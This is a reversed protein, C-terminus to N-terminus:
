VEENNLLPYAKYITNEFVDRRESESLDLSNILREYSSVENFAIDDIFFDTGFMLRSKLKPYKKFHKNLVNKIELNYEERKEPTRADNTGAVCTFINDYNQILSFLDDFYPWNLHSAIFNVEPFAKLLPELYKANSYMDNCEDSFETYTEGCHFAVSLGRKKAFEAVKFVREDNAFYPQYGLYIKLGVIRKFNKLDDEVKILENDVDNLDVSDLFFMEEVDKFENFDFPPQVCPNNISRVNLVKSANSSKKYFAYDAKTIPHIHCDFM